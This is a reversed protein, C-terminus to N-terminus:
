GGYEGMQVLQKEKRATKDSRHTLDDENAMERIQALFVAAKAPYRYVYKIKLYNEYLARVLYNADYSIGNELLILISRLSKIFSVFAFAVVFEVDLQEKGKRKSIGSNFYTEIYYGGIIQVQQLTGNLMKEPTEPDILEEIAVGAEVQSRFEAIATDYKTQEAPTLKKLDTVLRGTQLYAYIIEPRIDAQKMARLIERKLDASSTFYKNVLIPDNKRPKREFIAEFHASAHRFAEVVEDNMPIEKSINGASDRVWKFKRKKCCASYKRGSECPCPENSSVEVTKKGKSRNM